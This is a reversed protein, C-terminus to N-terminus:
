PSPAPRPTPARTGGTTSSRSGNVFLRSGDDSTLSFTYSGTAPATITGTWKASWQTANVGPGPSVASNPGWNFDVNPDTRTLVPTGSLTMDNYYQGTLGAGFASAPM